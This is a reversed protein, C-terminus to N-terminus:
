FVFNSQLSVIASASSLGPTIRLRLEHPGVTPVTAQVGIIPIYNGLIPYRDEFRDAEAPSSVYGLFAGIRPTREATNKFKREFHALVYPSNQDNADRFAGAEVGISYPSGRFPAESGIGLGQTDGSHLITAYNHARTAGLVDALGCATLTSVVLLSATIKALGM